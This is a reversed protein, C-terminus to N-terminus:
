YYDSTGGFEGEYGIDYDDENDDVSAGFGSDTSPDYDYGSSSGSSGDYGMGYDSSPDYGSGGSSFSGGDLIDSGDGFGSSPSYGSSGFDSVDVSQVGRGSTDGSSFGYGSNGAISGPEFAISRGTSNDAIRGGYLDREGVSQGFVTDRNLRDMMDKPAPAFGGRNTEWDKYIGAALQARTPNSSTSAPREFSNSWSIAAEEPTAVNAFNTQGLKQASTPDFFASNPNLEQMAFGVQNRTTNPKDEMFSNMNAMRPGNQQFVGKANKNDGMQDPDFRNGQRQNAMNEYMANATIGAAQQATFGRNNVLDDMMQAPDVIDNTVSMNTVEDKVKGAFTKDTSPNDEAMPNATIGPKDQPTPALSGMRAAGTNMERSMYKGDPGVTGYKDLVAQVEPSINKGFGLSVDKGNSYGWATLGNPNHTTDVHVMNNQGVGIGSAGRAIANDIFSAKQAETWGATNVDYAFGKHNAEDPSRFGSNVSVGNKGIARASNTVVENIGQSQNGTAPGTRGKFGSYELVSDYSPLDLTTDKIIDKPQHRSAQEEKFDKTFPAYDKTPIDAPTMRNKNPGVGAKNGAKDILDEGSKVGKAIKDMGKAVAPGAKEDLFTTVGTKDLFDQIKGQLQVGLEWQNEGTYPDMRAPNSEREGKDASSPERVTEKKDPKDEEPTEEDTVEDTGDVGELDTAGIIEKVTYGNAEPNYIVEGTLEDIYRVLMRGNPGRYLDRRVYKITGDSAQLAVKVDEAM